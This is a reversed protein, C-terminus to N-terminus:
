LSVSTVMTSDHGCQWAMVFHFLFSANTISVVKFAATPLLFEESFYVSNHFGAKHEM